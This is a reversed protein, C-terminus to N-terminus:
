EVETFSVFPSRLSLRLAPIESCGKGSSCNNASKREWHTMSLNIKRVSSSKKEMLINKILVDLSFNAFNLSHKLFQGSTSIIIIVTSNM